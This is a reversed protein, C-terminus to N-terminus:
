RLALISAAHAEIVQFAGRRRTTTGIAARLDDEHLDSLEYLSAALVDEEDGDARLLRVSSADEETRDGLGFREAGSRARRRLDQLYAIWAGGRDPMDVRKVFSPIVKRLEVLAM